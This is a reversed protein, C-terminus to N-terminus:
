GRCRHGLERVGSSIFEIVKIFEVIKLVVIVIIIAIPHKWDESNEGCQDPLLFVIRNMVWPM